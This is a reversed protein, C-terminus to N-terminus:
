DQRKYVDLHTYSVALSIDVQYIDAFDASLIEQHRLANYSVDVLKKYEDSTIRYVIKSQGVRVYATIEENESKDEPEAAEGDM